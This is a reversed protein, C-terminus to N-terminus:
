RTAPASTMWATWWLDRLMEAGAALREVAFQKNEPASTQENFAARKDIEYLREVKGHSTRLFNLVAARPNPLVQPEGTMAREIDALAVHKGVYISEFRAHFERDIAYGKPNEGIWGHHHITTHHPNAGDTVYHGLIGADNIIREEIWRRQRKDTTTRWLRFETRLRGFLELIRFPSLGAEPTEMGSKRLEALFLFRNEAKLADAPFREFNIFHDPNFADRTAPDLEAEAGDRWRDPEPNLYALQDSAERFFKPMARPLKKAAAKGSILHGHAGWAAVRRPQISSVILVGIVALTIVGGTRLINMM